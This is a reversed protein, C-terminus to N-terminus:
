PNADPVRGRYDFGQRPTLSPRTDQSLKQGIDPEEIFGITPVACWQPHLASQHLRKQTTQSERPVRPKQPVREPESGEEEEEEEEDEM